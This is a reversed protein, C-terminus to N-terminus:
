AFASSRVKPFVSRKPSNYPRVISITGAILDHLARKEPQFAAMLFGAGMPAYSGAYGLCRVLSQRFCLSQIPYQQESPCSDLAAVGSNVISMVYIRFVRKGLTTGFRHTLVTYYVLALSLRIGVLVIQVMFSSMADLISGGSVGGTLIGMRRFGYIVGLGIVGVLFTVLDLFISDIFDALFRIWFGAYHTKSTM